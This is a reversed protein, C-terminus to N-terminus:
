DISKTSLEFVSKATPLSSRLSSVMLVFELFRSVALSVADGMIRPSSMTEIEWKEKGSMDLLMRLCVDSAPWQSSLKTFRLPLLPNGDVPADSGGCLLVSPTWRNAITLPLLVAAASSPYNVRLGMPINPLRTEVGSQSSDQSCIQLVFPFNSVRWDFIMALKNAAVFLQGNPLTFIM